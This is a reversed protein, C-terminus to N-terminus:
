IRAAVIQSEAQKPYVGILKDAHEALIDKLSVVIIQSNNANEKLLEALNKSYSVDMHADVEDLIYFSAPTLGQLALLLAIVAVSKEGGSAAASARSPKGAFQLQMEVGSSIPSTKDELELRASGGTLRNFYTDFSSSIQAFFKMFTELKERDIQDIFRLIEEREHELQAIRTARVKYDGVIEEYQKPALQNVSGLDSLERELDSARREGTELDVEDVPMPQEFGLSELKARLLRVDINKETERSSLAQVQSNLDQLSQDIKSAEEDRSRIAARREDLGMRLNELSREIEERRRLLEEELQRQRQVGSRLEEIKGDMERVSTEAAEAAERGQDLQARSRSLNQQIGREEADLASLESEIRSHRESLSAEQSRLAGVRDEVSFASESELEAILEGLSSRLAEVGRGLREETSATSAIQAELSSLNSLIREKEEVLDLKEKRLVSVRERLDSFKLQLDASQQSLALAEKEINDRSKTKQELSMRLMGVSRKIRAVDDEHVRELESTPRAPFETRGGPLYMVGERTVARCGKEAVVWGEQPTEVLYVDGLIEQVAKSADKGHVSISNLLLPSEISRDSRRDATSGLSDTAITRSREGLYSILRALREGVARDELLLAQLWGSYASEVAPRLDPPVELFNSIRGGVGRISGSDVLGYIGTLLLNRSQVLRATERAANAEALLKEAEHLVAQARNVQLAIEEAKRRKDKVGLLTDDASRSTRAVESAVESEMYSISQIREDLRAVEEMNSEVVQQLTKTRSAAAEAEATTDTIQRNLEAIKARLETTRARRSREKEALAAYSDAVAELSHRVEDRESALHVRSSEIERARTRGEEEVKELKLARQLQSERDSMISERKAGLVRIQAEMELRQNRAAELDAVMGRLSERELSALEKELSSVESDIIRKEDVLTKKRDALEATSSRLKAEELAMSSASSEAELLRKSVLMGRIQKLESDISRSRLYQNREVELQRARRRVEATSAKAVDLNKEAVALQIEAESRRREFESVGSIEDLMKRMESPSMEAVSIVSGQPLINFGSPRINAAALTDLIESRSVGKGNIRYESEGSPMLKRSVTVESSDFPVARDSNDFCVSVRAFSAGRGNGGPNHVLESFKSVRLSRPSLEGLAFRVADFINSKGGGNPGTIVMLGKDLHV